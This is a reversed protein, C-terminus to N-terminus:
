ISVEGLITSEISNVEVMCDNPFFEYVYISGDEMRRTVQFNTDKVCLDNSGLVHFSRGVVVLSFVTKM